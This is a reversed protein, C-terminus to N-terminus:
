PNTKRRRSLEVRVVSPAPVVVSTRGHPAGRDLFMGHLEIALVALGTATAPV